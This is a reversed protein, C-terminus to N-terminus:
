FVRASDFTAIKRLLRGEFNFSSYRSYRDGGLSYSVIVQTGWNKAFMWKLSIADYSGPPIGIGFKRDSIKDEAFSVSRLGLFILCGVLVLRNLYARGCHKSQLM